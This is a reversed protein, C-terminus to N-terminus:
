NVMLGMVRLLFYLVSSNFLILYKTQNTQNQKNQQKVTMGILRNPNENQLISVILYKDTPIMEAFGDAKLVLKRRAQENMDDHLDKATLILRTM